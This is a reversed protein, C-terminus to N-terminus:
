ALQLTGLHEQIAANPEVKANKMVEFVARANKMDSKGACYALITEYPDEAPTMKKGKQVFKLVQVADGVRDHDLTLRIMSQTIRPSPWGDEGTFNNWCELAREVNSADLCMTFWTKYGHNSLKAHFSKMTKVVESAKALAEEQSCRGSESLRQFIELQAVFNEGNRGASHKDTTPLNTLLGLAKSVDGRAEYLEIISEFTVRTPKLKLEKMRDFCHVIHTQLEEDTLQLDVLSRFIFDFSARTLDMNSSVSAKLYGLAEDSRGLKGYLKILHVYTFAEPKIGKAKMTAMLEKCAALYAEGTDSDVNEAYVGLMVNFDRASEAGCKEIMENFMEKARDVDKGKGCVTIMSHYTVSDPKINYDKQMRHFTEFATDVEGTNMYASILINLLYKDPKKMGSIVVDDLIHKVMDVNSMRSYARMVVLYIGLDITIGRSKMEEFLDPIRSYNRDRMLQRMETSYDAKHKLLRPKKHSFDDTAPHDGVAAHFGRFQMEGTWYMATKVNVHRQALSRCRSSSPCLPNAPSIASRTPVVAVDASLAPAVAFFRSRLFWRAVDAYNRGSRRM